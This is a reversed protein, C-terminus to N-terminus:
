PSRARYFRHAFNTSDSDIFHLPGVSITNTALPSWTALDTSAELTIVQGASGIVHLGFFAPGSGDVFLAPRTSQVFWNSGNQYGGAL